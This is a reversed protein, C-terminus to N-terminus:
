YHANGNPSNLIHEHCFRFRQMRLKGPNGLARNEWLLGTLHLDAFGDQLDRAAMNGAISRNSAGGAEGAPGALYHARQCSGVSKGPMSDHGGTAPNRNGPFTAQVLTKAQFHFAHFEAALLYPHALKLVLKRLFLSHLPPARAQTLCSENRIRLPPCLSAQLILRRLRSAITAWAWAVAHWAM